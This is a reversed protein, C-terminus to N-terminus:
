YISASIASNVDQVFRRRGADHAEKREWFEGVMDRLREVFFEPAGDFKALYKVLDVGQLDTKSETADVFDSVRCIYDGEFFSAVIVQKTTTELWIDADTCDAIIANKIAIAAAIIQTDHM